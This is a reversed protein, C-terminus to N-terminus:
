FSLKEPKAIWILLASLGTLCMMVISWNILSAGVIIVTAVIFVAGSLNTVCGYFASALGAMKPHPDLCLATTNSIVVLFSTNFLFMMSSFIWKNIHGTLTFLGVGFASLFLILSAGRLLTLIGLKPLLARNVIQGLIIGLGCISFLISFELNSTGFVGEYIRPANSLATFLACYAAAGCILFYLSQSNQVFTKVAFWLRTPKLAEANKHSNTEKFRFLNFLLLLAAVFTTALFISRWGALQVIFTALLPAIIPGIAFIAMTMAMARALATGDHTDRLIARSLVASAGAGFGQLGRGILVWEITNGVMSLLSGASFVILGVFLVPRRGYRDSAPGYFFQGIGFFFAFASVTAQVSDLSAALDRTMDNFAPLTIDTSFGSLAM